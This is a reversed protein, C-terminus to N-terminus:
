RWRQNKIRTRVKRGCLEAILKWNEEGLHERVRKTNCLKWVTDPTAVHREVFLQALKMWQHADQKM